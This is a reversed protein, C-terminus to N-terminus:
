HFCKRKKLNHRSLVHSNKFCMILFLRYANTKHPYIQCNFVSPKAQKYFHLLLLCVYRNAQQNIIQECNCLASAAPILGKFEIMRHGAKRAHGDVWRLREEDEICPDSTRYGAM